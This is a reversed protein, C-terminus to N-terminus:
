LAPGFSFTKELFLHWGTESFILNDYFEILDTFTQPNVPYWIAATGVNGSYNYFEQAIFAADIMELIIETSVALSDPINELMLKSFFEKLDIDSDLDNFEICENRADAFYQAAASDSWSATFNTLEGLLEDLKDTRLCSCSLQPNIGQQYQSGGPRYSAIYTQTIELCLAELTAYDNWFTLLDSYPFGDTCIRDESGIIYSAKTGIETLVESTQMYCADLILLDPRYNMLNFA